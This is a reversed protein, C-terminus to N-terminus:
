MGKRKSYLVLFIASSSPFGEVAAKWMWGCFMVEPNAIPLTGKM